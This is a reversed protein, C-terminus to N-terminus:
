EKKREEDKMRGEEERLAEVQSASTIWPQWQEGGSLVKITPPYTFSFKSGLAVSRGM